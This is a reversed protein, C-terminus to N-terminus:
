QKHFNIKQVLTHPGTRFLFMNLKSVTQECFVCTTHVDPICAETPELHKM